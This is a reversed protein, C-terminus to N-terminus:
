KALDMSFLVKQEDLIQKLEYLMSRLRPPWTCTTRTCKPKPLLIFIYNSIQNYKSDKM